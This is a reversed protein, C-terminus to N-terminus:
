CLALWCVPEWCLQTTDSLIFLSEYELVGM